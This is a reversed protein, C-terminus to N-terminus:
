RSKVIDKVQSSLLEQQHKIGIDCSKDSNTYNYAESKLIYSVKFYGFISCLCIKFLKCLLFHAKKYEIINFDNHNIFNKM